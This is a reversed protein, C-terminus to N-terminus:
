DAEPLGRENTEAELDIEGEFVGRAPGRMSVSDDLRPSTIVLDGGPQHVLLPTGWKARETVCAAVAAACAGSGCAGTLGAGREWVTLEISGDAVMSAFGANVGAPFRDHRELVPGLSRVLEVDHDGFVVGHPNGMGVATVNVSRGAVDLSEEIMQDHEGIAPIESLKLTPRGMEVEIIAHGIHPHEVVVCRTTAAGTELRLESRDGRLDVLHLAVCRLGNGCIEAASGDSNWVSVRGDVGPSRGETVVLVGDAGIGLRRDCLARAQEGTVEHELLVFDNGLGEYKRFHVITM